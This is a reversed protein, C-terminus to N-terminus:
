HFLRFTGLPVQLGFVGSERNNVIRKESITTGMHQVIKQLISLSSPINPSLSLRMTMLGCLSVASKTKQNILYTLEYM